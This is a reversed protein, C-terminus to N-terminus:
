LADIIDQKSGDELYRCVKLRDVLMALGIGLLVVGCFTFVLRSTTMPLLVLLGGIGTTLAALVLGHGQQRALFLDRLGRAAILIGLIRGLSAMIWLPNSLLFSGAGLLVLGWVARSLGRHSVVAAILVGVGALSVGWGLIRGLLSSASDPNWILLVGLVMLAAPSALQYLLSLITQKKM